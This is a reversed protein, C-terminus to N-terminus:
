RGQGTLTLYLRLWPAWNPHHKEYFAMQSARYAQRTAEPASRASAGRLHEVEADPSFLVRRGRRRIAACFDVDEIYMFYREDMLGVAEADARRVLLCAGSVWDAEQARRTLRDVYHSVLPLRRQSGRVLCRQRLEALPSIMSGFSLEPRGSGDVLRPGVVAADPRSALAAILIDVARPRVRTDPNLLLVLDGNTSRFGRNNAAAFGLNAGAEIVRVSPWRERVMAVTGDGSANDVVLTEHPVAPPNGELSALCHQLDPRSNYSVIIISLQPTM